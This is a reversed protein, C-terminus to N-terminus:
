NVLGTALTSMVLWTIFGTNLAKTPKELPQHRNQTTLGDKEKKQWVQRVDASIGFLIDTIWQIYRDEIRSLVEM